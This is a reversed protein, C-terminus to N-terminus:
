REVSALAEQSLRAQDDSTLVKGTVQEFTPISADYSLDTTCSQASQASAAAPALAATLAAAGAALLATARRSRFRM